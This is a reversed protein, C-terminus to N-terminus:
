HGAEERASLVAMDAFSLGRPEAGPYDVFEVGRLELIRQVIYLSTSEDHM